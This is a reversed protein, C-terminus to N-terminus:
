WFADGEKDFSENDGLAVEQVWSIVHSDETEVSVSYGLAMYSTTLNYLRRMTSLKEYRSHSSKTPLKKM